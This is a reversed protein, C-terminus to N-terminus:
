STKVLYSIRPGHSRKESSQLYKKIDERISCYKYFVTFGAMTMDKKLAVQERQKTGSSSNEKDNIKLIKVLVFRPPLSEIGFKGPCM